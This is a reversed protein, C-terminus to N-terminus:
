LNGRNQNIRTVQVEVQLSESPMHCGDQMRDSAAANDSALPSLPSAKEKKPLDGPEEMDREAGM